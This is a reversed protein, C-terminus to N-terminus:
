YLILEAKLRHYGTSAEWDAGDPLIQKNMEALLERLGFDRWESAAALEPLMVGLWLLGAVDCLYHNSTAIHSFELNRQIHAGHQDFMQLQEKLAFEDTHPSRLFFTFAALLNMARLAVEMACNWNVGRGVPNQTRWLELQRLFEQSFREDNTDAYARGLTVLHSLRNLEWVVRADSGDNRILAIDAHYDLPWDFGSLPDRNWQIEVKGFCKEGFGLLPWCHEDVIRDARAILRATEAPFLQRQLDATQKPDAFGPFFRPRVRSRFHALLDSARVRAFEERLRAPQENLQDLSARERRQELTGRARRAAEQAAALTDVEGRLARKVKSFFKM